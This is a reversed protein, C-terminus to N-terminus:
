TGAIALADILLSPSTASGRIELDSGVVVRRYIEILNGAVTIENIPYAIEGNEFWFGSVGVSWDGTNGNLSPGFMSTVLVGAKAVAMLGALDRDGPTVTLNTTSVGDGVYGGAWALGTARDDFRAGIAVLLDAEDLLYNTCPAGHMGLMGLALPHDCPVAGLGM